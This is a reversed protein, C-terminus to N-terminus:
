KKSYSLSRNDYFNARNKTAWNEFNSLPDTPCPQRILAACLTFFENFDTWKLFVTVCDENRNFTNDNESSDFCLWRFILSHTLVPAAPACVRLYKPCWRKCGSIKHSRTSHVGATKLGLSRWSAGEGASGFQQSSHSNM